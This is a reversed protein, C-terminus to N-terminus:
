FSWSRLWASWSQPQLRVCFCSRTQPWFSFRLIAFLSAKREARQCALEDEKLERLKALSQRLVTSVGDAWYEDARHTFNLPKSRHAALVANATMKPPLVGNPALLVLDKLLPAMEALASVSLAASSKWTSKIAAAALLGSLDRTGMLTCYREVVEIVDQTKVDGSASL